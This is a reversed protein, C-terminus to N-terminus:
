LGLIAMESVHGGPDHWVLSHDGSLVEEEGVREELCRRIFSPERISIHFSCVTSVPFSSLLIAATGPVRPGVNWM